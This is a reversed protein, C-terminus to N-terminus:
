LLSNCSVTLSLLLIDVPQQYLFDVLCTSSQLHCPFHFINELPQSLLEHRHPSVFVSDPESCCLLRFSFWGVTVLRTLGSQVRREGDNWNVILSHLTWDTNVLSYQVVGGRGRLSERLMTWPLHWSAPHLWFSSVLLPGPPELDFSWAAAVTILRLIGLLLNPPAPWDQSISIAVSDILLVPNRYM